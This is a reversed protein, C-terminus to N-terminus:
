GSNQKLWDELDRARRSPDLTLANAASTLPEQLKPPVGGSNVLGIVRRQLRHIDRERTRGSEHAIQHALTILPAADARALKPAKTGGCGALLLV